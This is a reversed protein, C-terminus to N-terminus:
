LLNTSNIETFAVFLGSITAPPESKPTSGCHVYITGSAPSYVSSDSPTSPISGEPAAGEIKHRLWHLRANLLRM